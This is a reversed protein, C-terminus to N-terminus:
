PELTACSLTDSDYLTILTQMQVPNFRNSDCRSLVSELRTVRQEIEAVLEDCRLSEDGEVVCCRGHAEAAPALQHQRAAAGLSPFHARLHKLLTKFRGCGLLATLEELLLPDQLCGGAM